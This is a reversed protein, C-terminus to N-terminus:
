MGGDVWARRLYRSPRTRARRTARRHDTNEPSMGGVPVMKPGHKPRTASCATTRIASTTRPHEPLRAHRPAASVENRPEDGAATEMDGTKVNAMGLVKHLTDHSISDDNWLTALISVLLSYHESRITEVHENHKQQEQGVREAALKEVRQPAPRPPTTERDTARPDTGHHHHPARRVASTARRPASTSRGRRQPRGERRAQRM